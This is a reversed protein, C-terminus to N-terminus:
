GLYIDNAHSLIINPNINKEELAQSKLAGLIPNKIGLTNLILFWLGLILFGMGKILGRRWFWFVVGAGIGVMPM